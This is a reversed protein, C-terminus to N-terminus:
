GRTAHIYSLPLLLKTIKFMCEEDKEKKYGELPYQVSHCVILLSTSFKVTLFLVRM